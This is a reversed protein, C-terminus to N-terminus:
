GTSVAGCGAARRAFFSVEFGSPVFKGKRVQLMLAWITRKATAEMRKLLYSNRADEFVDGIGSGAIADEMSQSLLAEQAKEPIDFWTYDSLEIGKAFRELVDHYINGMDVSAFQQLEREKLRLGYSLYHAFACAAFQELRTVSNELPIGMYLKRSQRASRMMKIPALRRMLLQM